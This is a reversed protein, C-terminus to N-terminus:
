ALARVTPWVLGAHDALFRPSMIRGLPEETQFHHAGLWLRWPLVAVVLLVGGALALERVRHSRRGAISVGLGVAIALLAGTTGENKLGAAGILLLTAIGLDRRERSELWLGLQLTGLGLYYGVPVDAYGTLLRSASLVAAGAL